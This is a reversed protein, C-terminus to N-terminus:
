APRRYVRQKTRGDETVKSSVLEWGPQAVAAEENDALERDALPAPVLELRYRFADRDVAGVTGLPLLVKM